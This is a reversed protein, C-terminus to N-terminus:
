EPIKEVPLLQHIKKNPIRKERIGKNYILNALCNRRLCKIKIKTPKAANNPNTWLKNLPPVTPNPRNITM